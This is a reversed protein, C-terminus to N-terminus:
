LFSTMAPWMNNRHRLQDCKYYELSSIGWHPSSVLGFPILSLRIPRVSFISITLCLTLDQVNQHDYTHLTFLMHLLITSFGIKFFDQIDKFHKSNSDVEFGILSTISRFLDGSSMIVMYHVVLPQNSTFIFWLIANSDVTILPQNKLTSPNQEENFDMLFLKWDIFDM